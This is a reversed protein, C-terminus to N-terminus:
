PTEQSDHNDIVLRPPVIDAEAQVDRYSGDPKTIRLTLHARGPEIGPEAQQTTESM